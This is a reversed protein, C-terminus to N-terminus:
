AKPWRRFRRCRNKLSEAMASFAPLSKEVKRGDGGVDAINSRKKKGKHSFDRLPHPNSLGPSAQAIADGGECRLRV